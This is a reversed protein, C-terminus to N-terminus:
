RQAKAELNYGFQGMEGPVSETEPREKKIPQDQFIGTFIPM